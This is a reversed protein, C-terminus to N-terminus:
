KAKYSVVIQIKLIENSKSNFFILYINLLVEQIKDL